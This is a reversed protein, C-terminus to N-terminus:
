KDNNTRIEYFRELKQKIEERELHNINQNQVLNQNNNKNDNNVTINAGGGSAPANWNKKDRNYLWVQIAKVDAIVHKRLIRTKKKILPNGNKDIFPTELGTLKDKFYFQEVITEEDTIDYGVARNFLSDSVKKNAHAKNKSVAESFESFEKLYEYFTSEAIFLKDKAIEENTFGLSVWYPIQELFPKVKKEYDIPRGNNNIFNQEKKVEIEKSPAPLQQSKSIYKPKNKKKKSMVKLCFFM